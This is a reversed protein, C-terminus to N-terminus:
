NSNGIIEEPCEISSIMPTQNNVSNESYDYVSNMSPFEFDVLTWTSVNGKESLRSASTITLLIGSSNIETTEVGSYTGNYIGHSFGNEEIPIYDYDYIRVPIYQNRVLHKSGPVQNKLSSGMEDTKAVALLSAKNLGFSRFDVIRCTLEEESYANKFLILVIVLFILKFNKM